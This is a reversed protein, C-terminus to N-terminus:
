MEFLRALPDLHLFKMSFGDISNELEERRLPDLGRHPLSLHFIKLSTGLELIKSLVKLVLWCWIKVLFKFDLDTLRIQAKNEGKEIKNERMISYWRTLTEGSIKELFKQRFIPIKSFIIAVSPYIKKYITVKEKETFRKIPKIAQASETWLKIASDLRETKKYINETITIFAMKHM